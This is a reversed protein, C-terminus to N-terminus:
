RTWGLITRATGLKKTLKNDPTTLVIDGDQKGAKYDIFVVGTGDPALIPSRKLSTKDNLAISSNTRPDVISVVPAASGKKIDPNYPELIVTLLGLNNWHYYQLIDKDPVTYLTERKKTAIDITQIQDAGYSSDSSDILYAIKEGDTSLQPATLPDDVTILTTPNKATIEDVVIDFKGENFRTYALRTGDSSISPSSNATFNDILPTVTNTGDTSLAVLKDPTPSDDGVNAVLSQTDSALLSVSRIQQKKGSDTFLTKTEGSEVNISEITNIGKDLRWVVIAGTPAGGGQAIPSGLTESTNTPTTEASQPIAKSLMIGMVVLTGIFIFTIM